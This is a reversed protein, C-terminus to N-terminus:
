TNKESKESRESLFDLIAPVFDTLAAIREAYRLRPEGLLLTLAPNTTHKSSSCDELNGHDSSVIILTHELDAAALLGGLFGDFRRLLAVGMDLDQDHGAVDTQWHEFFVFDYPQAIRWLVQGAEAPAYVPADTYGLESRWAENTFDAALAHGAHLDRHTLLRQGGSVAAYPVASLVRKGRLIPEFYREPYANCFYPLRGAALLRRFIGAEDLLTRVRHDPRPGFHEGLRRPANCGTLIAAQGTASQPRGAVGLQADTPILDAQATALRGTALVPAHGDLLAALTPYCRAALPNVGPDDAGLGVGDLFLFLVRRRTPM